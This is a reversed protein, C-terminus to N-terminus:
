LWHEMIVAGNMASIAISGLWLLSWPEVLDALKWFHWAFFLNLIQFWEM